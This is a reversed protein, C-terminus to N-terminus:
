PQKLYQIITNAADQFNYAVITQYGQVVCLALFEKQEKSLTGGHSKLELALGHSQGRAVLLLYDPAGKRLGQGKAIAGAIRAQKGGTHGENKLHLLLREDPVGLGKHAFKFWTILNKAMRGEEHRLTKPGILRHELHDFGM